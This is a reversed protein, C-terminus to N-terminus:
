GSITIEFARTIAEQLNKCKKIIKRINRKLNAWFKEISSLDPSYVPLFIVEVGYKKAIDSLEPDKHFSANDLIVVDGSTLMPLLLEQFWGNFLHMDTYGSYEFPAIIEKTGHRYGAVISLRESRFGSQEAYTKQGKEAWGYLPVINNDTGSEDVFIVRNPELLEM